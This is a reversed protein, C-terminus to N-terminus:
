GGYQPAAVGEKFNVKVEFDIGGEDSIGVKGMVVNGLIDNADEFHAVQQGLVEFNKARGAISATMNVTDVDCQTFNVGSIVMDEVKSFLESGAKSTSILKSFDRLEQQTKLIGNELNKQDQTKSKAAEISLSDLEEKSKSVSQQLYFFTGVVLALAVLSIYFVVNELSIGSQKKPPM